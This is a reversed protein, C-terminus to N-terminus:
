SNNLGFSDIPQDLDRFISGKSSTDSYNYKSLKQYKFYKKVINFCVGSSPHQECYRYDHQLEEPHYSYYEYSKENKWDCGALASSLAMVTFYPIFKKKM